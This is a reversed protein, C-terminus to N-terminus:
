QNKFKQQRRYSRVRDVTMIFLAITLLGSIGGVVGSFILMVGGLALGLGAFIGLDEVSLGSVVSFFMYASIGFIVGFIITFIASGIGTKAM